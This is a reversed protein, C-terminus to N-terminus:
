VKHAKTKAVTDKDIFTVIFQFVGSLGFYVVCCLGLLPRSQPFPIPYFQAILAFVCSLFMIILKINESHYNIDYGYKKVAEILSDDLVQKVKISDGTEIIHPEPVEEYVVEEEETSFFIFIKNIKLNIKNCLGKDAM